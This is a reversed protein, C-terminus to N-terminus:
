YNCSSVLSLTCRIFAFLFFTYLRLSIAMIFEEVMAGKKIWVPLCIHLEASVIM